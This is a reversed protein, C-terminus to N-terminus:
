SRPQHCIGVALLAQILSGAAGVGTRRDSTCNGSCSVNKCCLFQKTGEIVQLGGLCEGVELRAAVNRAYLWSRVRPGMTLNSVQKGCHGNPIIWYPDLSITAVGNMSHFQLDCCPPGGCPM